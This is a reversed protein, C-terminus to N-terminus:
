IVIVKNKGTKKAKYLATDVRTCLTDINDDETAQTVGISVTQTRVVPFGTNAFCQRILDAILAASSVDTDNLLLM